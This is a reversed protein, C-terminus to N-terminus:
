GASAPGVAQQDGRHAADLRQNALQGRSRHRAVGAAGRLRFLAGFKAPVARVDRLEAFKAAAVAEEHLSLGAAQLAERLKAMADGQCRSDDLPQPPVHFVLRWTLRRMDLWRSRSSGQYHAMDKLMAIMLACADLSATLAAVWSQNDHQSRYFSLVPFSLHSELVEASWQELDQLFRRITDHDRSHAARLLLEGGAPPSGARADLMSIVTERRSFAQYLVPLYGIVVAMFAFGTGAEIVALLRGVGDRPVVDGFGLTFITTGSMYLYEGLNADEGPTHLVTSLSWHLWAFGVTLATMWCTILLLISLPGFISLFNERMKGPRLALAVTRWPIWLTRYVLRTFRFRRTVRRPLVMTEFGDLLVVLLLCISAFASIIAM